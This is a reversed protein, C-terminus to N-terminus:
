DVPLTSFTLICLVSEGQEAGEEGQNSFMSIIVSEPPAQPVSLSHGLTVGAIELWVKIRVLQGLLARSLFYREQCKEPLDDIEGLIM